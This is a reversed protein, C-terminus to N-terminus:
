LVGFPLQSHTKSESRIIPPPQPPPKPQAHIKVLIIFVFSNSSFNLVVIKKGFRISEELIEEHPSHLFDSTTKEPCGKDEDNSDSSHPVEEMLIDNSNDFSDLNSVVWNSSANCNPLLVNEEVDM